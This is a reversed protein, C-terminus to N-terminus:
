ILGLWNEKWAKCETKATYHLVVIFTILFCIMTHLDQISPHKDVKRKTLLHCNKDLCQQKEAFFFFFDQCNVFIGSYWKTPVKTNFVINIIYAIEQTMNTQKHWIQKDIEKKLDTYFICSKVPSWEEQFKSQVQHLM